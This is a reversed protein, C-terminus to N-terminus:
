SIQISKTLMDKGGHDPYKKLISEALKLGKKYQRLEYNKQISINHIFMYAYTYNTNVLLNRFSAAEKPPLERKNNAAMIDHIFFCDFFFFSFLPFFFYLCTLNSLSCTVVCQTYIIVFFCCNILDFPQKRMRKKFRAVAQEDTAM